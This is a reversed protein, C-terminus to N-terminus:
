AVNPDPPELGELLVDIEGLAIDQANAAVEAGALWDDQDPAQSTNQQETM